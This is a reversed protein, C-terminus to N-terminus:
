LFGGRNRIEFDEMFDILYKVSSLPMANYISARMGGVLRHGKINVINNMSAEYILNRDCEENNSFFPINTISRDRWLVNNYFMDSNDLYKYLLNAKQINVERLNSLNIFKTEIWKLILNLVYISFTPPTNYLSESDYYTKYNLMVPIDKRNENILDKRIIVISMGSVGANKQASAYLVGFKSVDIPESLISSSIDGILPIENYEPITNFRTGFITNNHCIHVYDCSEVAKYEPIYSYNDNESSSLIMAKGHKTCAEYAKKAWIGTIIYYAKKYLLNIPIMSFQLSAGGQIFLVDYNKPIDMIKKLREKTDTLLDYFEKSRHSMEMISQGTDKFSFIEERIIELVEEPIMAPGASFNYTRDRYM